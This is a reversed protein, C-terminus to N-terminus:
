WTAQAYVLGSDTTIEIDEEEGEIKLSKNNKIDRLFLVNWFFNSLVV